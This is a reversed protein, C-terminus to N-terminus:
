SPSPPPAPPASLAAIASFAFPNDPVVGRACHEAPELPNVPPARVQPMANLVPRITDVPHVRRLPVVPAAPQQQQAIAM